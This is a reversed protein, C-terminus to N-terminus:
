DITQCSILVISLLMQMTLHVVILVMAGAQCFM